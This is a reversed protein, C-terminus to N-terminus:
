GQFWNMPSNPPVSISVSDVWSYDKIFTIKKNGMFYFNEKKRVTNMIQVSFLHAIYQAGQSIEAFDLFIPICLSTKFDMHFFLCALIALVITFFLFLSLIDQYDSSVIILVTTNVCQLQLCILPDSYFPLRQDSLPTQSSAMGHVIARWAGGDMSIELCSCQLPYGNGKELPDEWGLSWVQREQMEQVSLLNNVLQSVLSSMPM